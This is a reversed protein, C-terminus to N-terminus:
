YIADPPYDGAIRPTEGDTWRVDASARSLAVLVALSNSPVSPVVPGTPTVALETERSLEVLIETVVHRSGTIGDPTWTIKWSPGGASWESSV